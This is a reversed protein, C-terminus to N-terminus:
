AQAVTLKGLEQQIKTVLHDTAHMLPLRVWKQCVGQLALNAKIGAPNGEDFHMQMIPLLQYQLRKASELEGALGHRVMESFMRPQANSAVSIVGSFGLAVQALGISDDGSFVKFSKPKTRIIEMGQELDGSAEKIAIVNDFQNALAVVTEPLMNSSTRGPVNYLIIPLDTSQAVASFHAIIGAQTPKNYYPSVSLFAAPQYAKTYASIEECVKRTNNGGCGIVVPVKGEALGMITRIVKDKEGASLTAAEGTTGLAVIFEVGGKINHKVVRKLGEFDVSQDELMPTIIATGTGTLESM